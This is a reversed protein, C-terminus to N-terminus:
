ARRRFFEHRFRGLIPLLVNGGSLAAVGGVGEDFCPFCGQGM